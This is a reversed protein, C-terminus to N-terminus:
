GTRPLPGVKGTVPDYFVCVRTPQFGPIPGVRLTVPNVPLRRWQMGDRPCQKFGDEQIYVYSIDQGKLSGGSAKVKEVTYSKCKRKDGVLRGKHMFLRPFFEVKDFKKFRAADKAYAGFFNKTYGNQSFLVDCSAVTCTTDDVMEFERVTLDPRQEKLAAVAVDKDMGPLEPFATCPGSVEVTISAVIPNGEPTEGADELRMEIPGEKKLADEVTIRARGLFDDLDDQVNDILATIDDSDDDLVSFDLYHGFFPGEITGEYEWEPHLCDGIVPTKFKSNSGGSLSCVCYPDSVNGAETGFHDADRLGQASKVFVRLVLKEVLATKEPVKEDRVDEEVDSEDDPIFGETICDVKRSAKAHGPMLLAESRSRSFSSSDSTKSFNRFDRQSASSAM